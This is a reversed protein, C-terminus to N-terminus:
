TTNASAAATLTLILTLVSQIKGHNMPREDCTKTVDGDDLVLAQRDHAAPHQLDPTQLILLFAVFLHKLLFQSSNLVSFNRVSSSRTLAFLM